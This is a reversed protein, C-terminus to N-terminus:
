ALFFLFISSLLYFSVVPCFYLPERNCITAMLFWMIFSYHGCRSRLAAMFLEILLRVFHLGDILQGDLIVKLDTATSVIDVM